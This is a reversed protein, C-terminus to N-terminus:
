RELSRAADLNIWGRDHQYVALEVEARREPRTFYAARWQTALEGSIQAHDHQHLYIFSTETERVIM